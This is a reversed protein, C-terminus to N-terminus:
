ATSRTEVSRKPACHACKRCTQRVVREGTKCQPVVQLCTVCDRGRGRAHVPLVTLVGLVTAALLVSGLVRRIM